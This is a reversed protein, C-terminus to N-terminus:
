EVVMRFGDLVRLSIETMVQIRVEKSSAILELLEDSRGSAKGTKMKNLIHVVEEKSVCVVPTEVADGEM